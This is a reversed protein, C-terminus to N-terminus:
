RAAARMARLARLTSPSLVFASMVFLLEIPIVRIRGEGHMELVESGFEPEITIRAVAPVSLLAALPGIVAWLRGTDAPDDLGLRVDLDLSQVRIRRLIEQALRLLRWGFGETRLMALMRRAGGRKGRHRRAEPREPVARTPVEPKGLRLRVLGFLWELTGGGKQRGQHHRVSFALDVPVALLALLTVLFALLTWVILM